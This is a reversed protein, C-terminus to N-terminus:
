KVNGQTHMQTHACKCIHKRWFVVQLLWSEGEMHSDGPNFELLWDQYGASKSSSSAIESLNTNRKTSM